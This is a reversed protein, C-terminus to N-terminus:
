FPLALAADNWPGVEPPSNRWPVAARTAWVIGEIIGRHQKPPRGRRGREAPLLKERKECVVDPFGIRVM